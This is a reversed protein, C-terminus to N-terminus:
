PNLSAAPNYTAQVVRFDAELSLESLERCYRQKEESASWYYPTMELLGAVAAADPLHMPYTVEAIEDVLLGLGATVAMHEGHPQPTDYILERLAFLHQPGPYVWLYLGGPKLVRAIEDDSAPAFIRIVVDVSNDSLPIDYASAVATQMEPYRRASLQMAGRSIDVGILKAQEALIAQLKGAYYGEGCGADLIQLPTSKEKGSDPFAAQIREALVNVLPAYFDRELFARRSLLMAKSDGPDASKKKHALLLNVYGEKAKDFTHRNACSFSRDFLILPKSCVPCRWFFKTM